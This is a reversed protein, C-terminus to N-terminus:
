KAAASGAVDRRRKPQMMGAVVLDAAEIAAAKLEQALGLRVLAVAGARVQEDSEGGRLLQMRGLWARAKAIDGAADDLLWGFAELVHQRHAPILPVADALEVRVAAVADQHNSM